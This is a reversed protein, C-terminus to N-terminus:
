RGGEETRPKRATVVISYVLQDQRDPPVAARVLDLFEPPVVPYRALADVGFPTRAMSAAGAFGVNGLKKLLV